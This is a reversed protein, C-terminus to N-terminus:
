LLLCLRGNREILREKGTHLYLSQLVYSHNQSVQYPCLLLRHGCEAHGTLKKEELFFLNTM